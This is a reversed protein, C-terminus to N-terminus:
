TNKQYIVVGVRGIHDILDANGLQAYQSLDVTYPLYLDDIQDVIQMSISVVASFGLFGVRECAV